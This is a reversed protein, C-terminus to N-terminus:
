IKRKSQKNIVIINLTNYLQNHLDRSNIINVVDLYGNNTFNKLTEAKITMNCDIILYKVVHLHGYSASWKLSNNLNTQIDYQQELLYKIVAVQENESSWRLAYHYSDLTVGQEVLYKVIELHSNYSRWRLAYDDGSNIDAGKGIAYKVIDLHSNEASIILLKTYQTNIQYLKILYKVVELHGLKASVKLADNISNFTIGQTILLKINNLDNKKVCRMLKLKLKDQETKM